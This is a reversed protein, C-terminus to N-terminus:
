PCSKYFPAGVKYIPRPYSKRSLYKERAHCLDFTPKPRASQTKLSGKASKHDSAKESGIKKIVDEDPTGLDKM